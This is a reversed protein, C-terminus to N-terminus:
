KPIIDGGDYYSTDDGYKKYHHYGGRPDLFEVDWYEPTKGRAPSYDQHLIKGIEARYGNSCVVTDGVEATKQGTREDIRM